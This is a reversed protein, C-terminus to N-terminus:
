VIVAMEILTEAKTRNRKQPPIIDSIEQFSKYTALIEELKGSKEWERYWRNAASKSAFEETKPLAGWKNGTTLVFLIANLVGRWPTHPKGRGRKAPTPFLPELLQWQLETLTQYSM